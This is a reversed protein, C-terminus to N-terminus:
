TTAAAGGAAAPAVGRLVSVGLTETRGKLELDRHELDDPVEGAAEWAAESM